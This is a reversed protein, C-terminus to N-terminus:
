SGPTEDPDQAGHSRASGVYFGIMSATLAILGAALSSVVSSVDSAVTVLAVAAAVVSVVAGVLQVRRQRLERRSLERRFVMTEWALEERARDVLERASSSTRTTQQAHRLAECVQPLRDNRTAPDSLDLARIDGLMFPLRAERDALVPVIPRGSAVAGGIELSTWQRDATDKGLIVVFSDSGNIGQAVHEAISGGVQILEDSWVEFGCEHLQSAVLRALPKDPSAYSLFVQV